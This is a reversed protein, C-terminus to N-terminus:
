ISKLTEPSFPNTLPHILMEHHIETLTNSKGPRHLTFARVLSVTFHKTLEPLDKGHTKNDRLTALDGFVILGFPM